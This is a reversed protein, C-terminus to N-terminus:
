PSYYTCFYLFVEFLVVCRVGDEWCIKGVGVRVFVVYPM